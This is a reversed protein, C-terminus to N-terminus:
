EVAAVRQGRVRRLRRDEGGRRGRWDFGWRGEARAEGVEKVGCYECGDQGVEGVAGLEVEAGGGFGEAGEEVGDGGGGERGDVVEGDFEDLCDERVGGGGGKFGGSFGAFCPVYGGEIGREELLM